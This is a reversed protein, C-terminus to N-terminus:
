QATDDAAAPNHRVIQIIAPPAPNKIEGSHEHQTKESFGEVLQMFLKAMAPNPPYHETYEHRQVESPVGKGQSVAMIKVARHSYGTAGAYIKLLVDPTLQQYVNDSGDGLKVRKRHAKVTKDSLGTAACLEQITPPRHHTKIFAVMAKRVQAENRLADERKPNAPAKKMAWVERM